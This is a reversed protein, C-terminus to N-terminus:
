FSNYIRIVRKLNFITFQIFLYQIGELEYVITEYLYSNKINQIM